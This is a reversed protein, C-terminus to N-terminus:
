VALENWEPRSNSHKEIQFYHGLAQNFDSEHIPQQDQPSVCELQVGGEFFWRARAVNKFKVVLQHSKQLREGLKFGTSEFKCYPQEVKVQALNVPQGNQFFVISGDREPRITSSLKLISGEGIRDTLFEGSAIGENQLTAWSVVAIGIVVFVKRSKIWNFVM